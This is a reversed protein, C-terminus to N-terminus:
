HIIKILIIAVDAIRNLNEYYYQEVIIRRSTVQSFVPRDVDCLLDAEEFQEFNEFKRLILMIHIIIHRRRRNMVYFTHKM